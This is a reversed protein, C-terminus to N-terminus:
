CSPKVKRVLVEFGFTTPKWKVQPYALVAMSAIPQNYKDYLRYNYVFMRSAFEKQKKGQVEIHIYVWKQGGRLLWFYFYKGVVGRTCYKRLRPM